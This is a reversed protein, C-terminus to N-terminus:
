REPPAAPAWGGRARARLSRSKKEFWSRSRDIEPLVWGRVRLVALPGRWGPAHRLGPVRCLELVGAGLVYMGFWTVAGMGGPGPDLLLWGAFALAWIGDLARLPDARLQGQALVGGLRAAGRVLIWAVLVGSLAPMALQPGGILLLALLLSPASEVVMAGWVILPAARRSANAAVAGSGVDVLAFGVLLVMLATVSGFRDTASLLGLAVAASGRLALLWWQRVIVVSM